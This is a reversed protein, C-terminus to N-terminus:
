DFDVVELLRVFINVWDIFIQVAAQVAAILTYEGHVAQNWDYLLWGCFVVIGIWDVVTLAGQIGVIGFVGTPVLAFGVVPLVILLVTAGMLWSGWGSLDVPILAGILGLVGVFVLSVLLIKFLNAVPYANLSVSLIAGMAVVTIAAGLLVLLPHECLYTVVLGVIAVVLGVLLFVILQMTSSPVVDKTLWAVALCGAVGVMTLVSVLPLFVARPMEDSRYLTM